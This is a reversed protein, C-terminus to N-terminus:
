SQSGRRVNGWRWNSIAPPDELHERSYRVAQAILTDLEALLARSQGEDGITRKIAEKALHYRSMGNLVVMDFPTTTTGQETFGRVHFREANTRGHLLQHVARQYGHFAFIVPRSETFLDVFRQESMGHPHQDPPFLTMLDVINVIRTKIHPVNVRLWEAAALTELTPVDGACALVVDAAGAADSESGAWHWTSAGLACHEVAEEMTLYQLHPQKDIVILNVYSRSRLCHDAV